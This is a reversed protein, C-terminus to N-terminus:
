GPLVKDLPGIKEAHRMFTRETGRPLLCKLASRESVVLSTVSGQSSALTFVIVFFVVATPDADANIAVVFAFVFFM